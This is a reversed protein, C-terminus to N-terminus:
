DDIELRCVPGAVRYRAIWRAVRQEYDPAEVERLSWGPPVHGSYGNVTPVHRMVSILMADIQYEHKFPSRVPAAAAYFVACNRPLSTALVELRSMEAKGSFSPARGFQEVIGFAVVALLAANLGWRALATPQLSIRQLGRHVAVAFAISMPLTLVLVYRAIARLGDAGPVFRYVLRWASVAGWYKIGIAYFLAVGLIMASLCVRKIVSTNREVRPNRADDVITRIAWITLAVLALSPVLGIAVNLETSFVPRIRSLAASVGGWIYNGEGTQILSWGDPILENVLNYPRPGVSAAVPVYILFLPYLSIMLVLAGSALAPWLRRAIEVAVRRTSPVSFVIVLFLCSWFTFLWGQYPSVVFQLALSLAAAALLGFAQGQTLRARRQVFRVVCAIVLPLFFSAQYGYHGAHNFRPSNFAFFMAGAVSAIANLGLVRRLLFFCALYNLFNFLVLPVVLATVMDMGAMRLGSYPLAHVFMTEAYGITGKVPYFMGPSLPEAQGRFVQYWHEVLYVSARADGRDGPLRDFGSTLLSRDWAATGLIGPVLLLV